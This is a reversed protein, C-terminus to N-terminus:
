SQTPPAQSRESSEDMIMGPGSAVDEEHCEENNNEVVLEEEKEEEEEEEAEDLNGERVAYSLAELISGKKSSFRRNSSSSHNSKSSSSNNNNQPNDNGRRQQQRQRRQAKRAQLFRPRLYILVNWFGQCPLVIGLLLVIWYPEQGTSVEIMRTILPTLYTIYLGGVYFYSQVALQRSMRGSIPPRQRPQPPTLTDTSSFTTVGVFNRASYTATLQEQHRVARYITFMMPAVLVLALWKPGLIFAFRYLSANDGRECDEHQDTARTNSDIEDADSHEWSERCGRPAAAIYCIFGNSNYLELILCAMQTVIGVGIPIAHLWWREVHLMKDRSWNYKVRLVYHMALSANYLVVTVGGQALVGVLTCTAVNGHAGWVNPSGAPMPWTGLFFATSYMIDGISLGMMLRQYTLIRGSSRGPLTQFLRLQRLCDYLIYSSGLLSLSAGVKPAYAITKQLRLSPTM